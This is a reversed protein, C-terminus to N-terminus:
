LYNVQNTLLNNMEHLKSNEKSILNHTYVLKEKANNVQQLSKIKEENKSLSTLVFDKEKHCKDISNQYSIIKKDIDAILIHQDLAINQFKKIKIEAELIEKQIIQIFDANDNEM